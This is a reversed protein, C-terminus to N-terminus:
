VTLGQELQGPDGGVVVDAGHQIRGLRLQQVRHEGRDDVFQIVSAAEVGKAPEIPVHQDGEVSGLIEAGVFDVARLARFPQAAVALGLEVMGHQSGSQHCRPLIM